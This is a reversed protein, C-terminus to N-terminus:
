LLFARLAYIFIDAVYLLRNERFFHNVRSIPIFYVVAYIVCLATTYIECYYINILLSKYYIIPKVCHPHIRVISKIATAHINSSTITNNKGM